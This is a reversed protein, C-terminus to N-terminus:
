SRLFPDRRLSSCRHVPADADTATSITRASVSASARGISSKLTGVRARTGLHRHNKPQCSRRIEFGRVHASAGAFRRRASRPERDHSRAGTIHRPYRAGRCNRCSPLRTRSLWQGPAPSIEHAREGALLDWYCGFRRSGRSSPRGLVIELAASSSGLRRCPAVIVANANRTPSARAHRISRGRAKDTLPANPAPDILM